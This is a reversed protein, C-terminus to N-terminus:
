KVRRKLKPKIENQYAFEGHLERAAKNYVLAAEEKTKYYGLYMLKYNSMIQAMFRGKHPFVGKYGSSSNKYSKVNQNNGMATCLRINNRRNDHKVGNIHDVMQGKLAGLLERHMKIPVNNLSGIAYGYHDIHWKYQKCWDIDDVDVIIFGSPKSWKNYCIIKCENGTIIFENATFRTRM